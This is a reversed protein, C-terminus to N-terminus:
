RGTGRRGHAAGGRQRREAGGGRQPEAASGLGARPGVRADVAGAARRLPELLRGLGGAAAANSRRYGYDDNASYVAVPGAWPTQGGGRAACRIRRGRDAAAPRPLRRGGARRRIVPGARRAASGAGRLGGARGAGRSVARHGAEEIRDIRFLDRRTWGLSVLDGPTLALRSPPLACTLSDRAIRGESLAREAVGEGRGRLLRDARVDPRARDPADPALAEVAGPLM